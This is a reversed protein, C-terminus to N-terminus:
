EQPNLLEELKATAEEGIRKARWEAKLKSVSNLDSALFRQLNGPARGFAGGFQRRLQKQKSAQPKPKKAM